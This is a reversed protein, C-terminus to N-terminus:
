ASLNRVILDAVDPAALDTTDIVVDAAAVMWPRQEIFRAVHDQRWESPGQEADDAIRSRLGDEQCDLLVHVVDLELEQMGRQLERWYEKVLVTQPAIVQSGTFTQVTSLAHPVLQRWPPLDQFDSFEHDSFNASLMYGVHEPDFVRSSPVRDLLLSATTTKGVGFTGNLWIIM